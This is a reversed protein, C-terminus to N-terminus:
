AYAKLHQMLMEIPRAPRVHNWSPTWWTRGLVTHSQYNAGRGPIQESLFLRSDYGSHAQLTLLGDRAFTQHGSTIKLGPLFVFNQGGETKYTAGGCVQQIEALAEPTTV